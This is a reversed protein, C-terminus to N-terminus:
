TSPMNNTFTNYSSSFQPYMKTHPIYNNNFTTSASMLKKNQFYDSNNNSM